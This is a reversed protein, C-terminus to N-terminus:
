PVTETLPGGADTAPIVRIVDGDQIAAAAFTSNSPIQAGGKVALNYGQPNATIFGGAILESIVEPPTMSQDMDVDVLRGDTPHLFKIKVDAM